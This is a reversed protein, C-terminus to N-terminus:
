SAAKAPTFSPTFCQELFSQTFGDGSGGTDYKRFFSYVKDVKKIQAQQFARHLAFCVANCVKQNVLSLLAIQRPTYLNLQIGNMFVKIIPDLIGWQFPASWSSLRERSDLSAM